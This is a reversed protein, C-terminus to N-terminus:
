TKIIQVQRIFYDEYNLFSPLPNRTELMKQM